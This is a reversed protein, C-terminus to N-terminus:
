KSVGEGCAYERADIKGFQEIVLNTKRCTGYVIRGNVKEFYKCNECVVKEQKLDNM